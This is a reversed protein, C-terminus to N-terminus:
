SIATGTLLDMFRPGALTATLSVRGCSFASGVKVFTLSTRCRPGVQLLLLLRDSVRALALANESGSAGSVISVPPWTRQVVRPPLSTM